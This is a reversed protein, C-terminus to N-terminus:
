GESDLDDLHPRTSGIRTLRARGGSSLAAANGAVNALTPRIQRVRSLVLADIGSPEFAQNLPNQGLYPQGIAFGGLM